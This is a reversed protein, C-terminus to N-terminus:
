RLLLRALRRDALVLFLATMVAFYAIDGLLGIGVDGLALSRLLHVGHYLPTAPLLWQMVRPYGSSPVFTGSFLFMPLTLLEVFAFDAWTRLLTTSFVAAGSFAASELLAAPVLLVAWASDLLGLVLMISVFAVSYVVGRLLTYAIEGAAIDRVTMPTAVIGEYTKAYKLKFFINGAEYVPGNMASAALLAPAVFDRYPVAHGHFRVHGVLGGVGVGLALLYFLPEFFGSVFVLWADRSSHFNREVLRLPRAGSLPVRPLIRYGATLTSLEPAETRM